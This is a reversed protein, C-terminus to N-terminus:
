QGISEIRLPPRVKLEYNLQGTSKKGNTSPTTVRPERQDAETQLAAREGSASLNTAVSGTRDESVIYAGQRLDPQLGSSTKLGRTRSLNPRPPRKPEPEPSEGRATYGVVDLPIEDAQKLNLTLTETPSVLKLTKTSPDYTELQYGGISRGLSLWHTAGTETHHLSFSRGSGFDLIGRLEFPAASQASACVGAALSMSVALAVRTFWRIQTYVKSSM